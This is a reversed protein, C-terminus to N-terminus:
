LRDVSGAFHVGLEAGWSPDLWLMKTQGDRLSRAHAALEDDTALSDGEELGYVWTLAKDPAATGDGRWLTLRSSVNQIRLGEARLHLADNVHLTTEAGQESVFRLTLRTGTPDFEVGRLTSDHFGDLTEWAM